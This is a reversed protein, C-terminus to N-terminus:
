RDVKMVKGDWEARVVGAKQLLMAALDVAQDPPLGIWSVEKGFNIIVVGESTVALGIQLEGEDSPGLQGRPFKGTAGLSM